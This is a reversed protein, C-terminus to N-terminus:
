EGCDGERLPQSTPLGHVWSPYTEGAIDELSSDFGLGLREGDMGLGTGAFNIVRVRSPNGVFAHSPNWHV